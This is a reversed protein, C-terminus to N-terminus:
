QCNLNEIVPNIMFCSAVNLSQGAATITSNNSSFQFEDNAALPSKVDWSWDLEARIQMLVDCAGHFKFANKLETGDGGKEFLHQLRHPIAESEEIGRKLCEVTNDTDNEHLKFRFNGGKSTTVDVDFTDVTEIEGMEELYKLLVSRTLQEKRIYKEGKFLKLLGGGLKIEKYVGRSANDKKTVWSKTLKRHTADYDTTKPQTANTTSRRSVASTLVAIEISSRRVGSLSARRQALLKWASPASAPEHDAM